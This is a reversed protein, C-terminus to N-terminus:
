RSRYNKFYKKSLKYCIITRNRKKGAIIAIQSLADPSDDHANKGESTYMHLENMAAQYDEDRKYRFFGDSLEQPM